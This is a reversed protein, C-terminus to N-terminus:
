ARCRPGTPRRRDARSPRRRPAPRPRPGCWPRCRAPRVRCGSWWRSRRRRSSAASARPGREPWRATGARLRSSVAGRGCTRRRGRDWMEDGCQGAGGSRTPVFRSLAAIASEDGSRERQRGGIFARGACRSRDGCRRSAYRRRRRGTEVRSRQWRARVRRPPGPRGKSIDRATGSRVGCRSLVPSSCRADASEDGSRERKAGSTFASRRSSTSPAACVGGAATKGRSSWMGRNYRVGSDGAGRKPVLIKGCPGPAAAWTARGIRSKTASGAATVADRPHVSASDGSFLSESTTRELSTGTAPLLRFRRRPRRRRANM